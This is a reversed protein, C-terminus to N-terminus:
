YEIRRLLIIRTMEIVLSLNKKATIQDPVDLYQKDVVFPNKPFFLFTKLLCM